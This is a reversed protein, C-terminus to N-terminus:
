RSFIRNTFNKQFGSFQLMNRRLVQDFDGRPACFLANQGRFKVNEGRFASM